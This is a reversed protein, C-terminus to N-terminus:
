YSDNDLCNHEKDILFNRSLCPTRQDRVNPVDHGDSEASHSVRNNEPMGNSLQPSTALLAGRYCKMPAIHGETVRGAVGSHGVM